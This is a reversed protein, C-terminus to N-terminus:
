IKGPFHVANKVIAKRFKKFQQPPMKLQSIYITQSHLRDTKVFNRNLVAFKSGPNTFKMDELSYGHQM